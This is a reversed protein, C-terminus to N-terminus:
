LTDLQVRGLDLMARLQLYPNSLLKEDNASQARTVVGRLARRYQLPQQLMLQRLVFVAAYHRVRVDPESLLSTFFAAGGLARLAGSDHACRGMLLLLVSARSDWLPRDAQVTAKVGLAEDAAQTLRAASTGPGGGAMADYQMASSDPRLDDFLARLLLPPMLRLLEQPVMAKGNLFNWLMTTSAEAAAAAAREAQEAADADTGDAGGGGGGPRKAGSSAAVDAASPTGEALGLAQERAGGRPTALLRVPQGSAAAAAAAAAAHLAALNPSVPRQPAASGPSLLAGAVAPSSGPSAPLQLPPPTAAALRHNAGSLPAGPTLVPTGPAQQQQQQQPQQQRSQLPGEAQWSGDSSPLAPSTLTFALLLQTAQLMAGQRAEQPAQLLWEVALSLTSIVAEPCNLAKWSGSDGSDCPSSRAGSSGGESLELRLGSAEGGEAGGDGLSLGRQELQVASGLRRASDARRVGSGPAGPPTTGPGQSSSGSGYAAYGGAAATQGSGWGDETDWGSSACRLRVHALFSGVAAMFCDAARSDPTTALARMLLEGLASQGRMGRRGPQLQCGGRSGVEPLLATPVGQQAAATSGGGRTLQHQQPEQQLQQQQQAGGGGGGRALEHEAAAVLLQLLWGRGTRSGLESSDRMCDALCGWAAASDGPAGAGPSAAAAPAAVAELTLKVAEQLALPVMAGPVAVVRGPNAAQLAAMQMTVAAALPQMTGSVGALFLPHLAEAANMRLLAAGLALAESSHAQHLLVPAWADQGAPKQGAVVYDYLVVFMSRRADATPAERYCSLVQRMGGFAALREWHLQSGAWWAGGRGTGVGGGGGGGSRHSDAVSAAKSSRHVSRHDDSDSHAYLLNAALTILWAHLQESWLHQRSQELLAAVVSLPLEEVYARVVAGSHTTLHVLCSLAAAWAAESAGGSAALTALLQFLLLRLWQQFREARACRAEPRAGLLPPWDAIGGNAGGGGGGVGFHSNTQSAGGMSAGRRSHLHGDAANRSSHRELSSRINVTAAKMTAALSARFASTVTAKWNPVNMEGGADLGAVADALAATDDPVAEAASDYLLEGHVSLNYVLDFVRAQVAAAEGGVLPRQLLLLALPFAARPGATVYLDMILKVLIVAAVEGTSAAGSLGFQAGALSGWLSDAADTFASAGGGMQGFVAEVVAAVEEEGVSLPEQQSYPKYQFLMRARSSRGAQQWAGVEAYTGAALLWPELQPPAAARSPARQQQAATALAAHRSRQRASSGSSAAPKAAADLQLTVRPLSQWAGLTHNVGAQYRQQFVDSSIGWGGPEDQAQLESQRGQPM